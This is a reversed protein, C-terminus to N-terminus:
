VSALARCVPGADTVGIFRGSEDTVVVAGGSRLAPSGLLAQLDADPRTVAALKDTAPSKLVQGLRLGDDARAAVAVQARHAMGLYRGEGDLVPVFRVREEDAFVDRWADAASTSETKTVPGEVLADAAKLQDRRERVGVKRIQEYAGHAIWGGTIVMILPFPTGRSDDLNFLGWLAVAAGVAVGLVGAVHVGLARNRTAGWIVHSLLWGGDLPLGPLLNFALTFLNVGLVVLLVFHAADAPAHGLLPSVALDWNGDLARATLECLGACVATMAPGAVVHRFAARPGAEAGYSLAAGGLAHLQIRVGGHGQARAVLAHGLEHALLSLTVLLVVMAAVRNGHAVVGFREAVDAFGLALYATLVLFSLDASVPIGRVTFLKLEGAVANTDSM